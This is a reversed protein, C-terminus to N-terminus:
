TNVFSWGHGSITQFYSTVVTMCGKLKRQMLTQDSITLQRHTHIETEIEIIRTLLQINYCALFSKPLFTSCM